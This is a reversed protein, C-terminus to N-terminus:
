LHMNIKYIIFVCFNVIEGNPILLFFFKLMKPDGIIIKYIFCQGKKERFFNCTCISKIYLLYVFTLMQMM